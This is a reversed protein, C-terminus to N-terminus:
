KNQDTKQNQHYQPNRHRHGKASRTDRRDHDEIRRRNCGRDLQHLTVTNDDTRTMSGSFTMYDNAALEELTPNDSYSPTFNQYDTGEAVPYWAKFDMTEDEM